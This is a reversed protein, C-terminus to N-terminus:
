EGEGDGLNERERSEEQKGEREDENSLKFCEVIEL